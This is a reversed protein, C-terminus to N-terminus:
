RCMRTLMAVIRGLMRQGRDRQEADVHNMRACVDLMAGCELASGRASAYDRARYPVSPKGSREVVDGIDLAVSM